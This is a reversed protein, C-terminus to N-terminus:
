KTKCSELTAVPTGHYSITVTIKQILADRDAANAATIAASYGTYNDFNYVAPSGSSTVMSSDPTYATAFTQKKVYEMQGEALARATDIQDVDNAGKLAHTMGGLFGACVIGIIAIGILVELLSFGKENKLLM